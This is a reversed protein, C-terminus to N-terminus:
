PYDTLAERLADLLDGPLNVYVDPGDAAEIIAKAAMILEVSPLAQGNGDGTIEVASAEAEVAAILSRTRDTAYFSPFDAFLRYGAKTRLETGHLHPECVDPEGGGFEQVRHPLCEPQQPCICGKHTSTMM